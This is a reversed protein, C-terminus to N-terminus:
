SSYVQLKRNFIKIFFVALKLGYVKDRKIEESVIEYSLPHTINKVVFEEFSIAGQDVNDVADLNTQDDYAIRKLIKSKYWINNSM